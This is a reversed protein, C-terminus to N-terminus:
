GDELRWCTKDWEKGSCHQLIARIRKLRDEFEKSEVLTEVDLNREELERIADHLKVAQDSM